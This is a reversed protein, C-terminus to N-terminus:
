KRLFRFYLGLGLGGLILIAGAVLLLPSRGGGSAVQDAPPQNVSAQAGFDILSRNGALLSLPYNTATTPNYGAPVAMSINYDGEPLDTFCLPTDADTTLGTGSYSGTRDSVSVAGGLIPAEDDERVANGNVDAFLVICIEGTGRKPTPTPLLPTPTVDPNITATPAPTVVGLLLDAGEQLTCADDLKNLSRLTDVKVGTLLEIRVCTDGPQVKYLIRGDPNATPTQYTVQSVPGAQVTTVVVLLLVATLLGITALLTKRIM